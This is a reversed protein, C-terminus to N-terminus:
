NAKFRDKPPLADYVVAGDDFYLYSFFLQKAM